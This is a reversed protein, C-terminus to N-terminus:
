PPSARSCEGSPPDIKFVEAGLVGLQRAVLAATIYQGIELVRIGALPHRATESGNVGPVAAGEPSRALVETIWSRSEDVAPIHLDGRAVPLSAALPSGPMTVVAGAGDRARWIMKRYILNAEHSLQPPPLIPGFAIDIASVREICDAV